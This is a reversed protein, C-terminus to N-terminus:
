KLGDRVVHVVPEKAGGRSLVDGHGDVGSAVAVTDSITLGKNNRHFLFQEQDKQM